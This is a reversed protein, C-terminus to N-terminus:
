RSRLMLNTAIPLVRMQLTWEITNLCLDVAARLRSLGQENWHNSFHNTATPHWTGCLAVTYLFQVPDMTMEYGDLLTKLLGLKASIVRSCDKWKKGLPSVLELLAAIDAEMSLWLVSARQLGDTSGFPLTPRLLGFHCQPQPPPCSVPVMTTVHGLSTAAVSASPSTWQVLVDINDFIKGGIPAVLLDATSLDISFVPIIGFVHCMVLSSQTLSIMVSGFASELFGELHSVRKPEGPENIEIMGYKEVIKGEANTFDNMTWAIKTISGLPHSFRHSTMWHSSEIEIVGTEGDDFGVGVLRGNSSFSLCTTAGSNSDLSKTWM